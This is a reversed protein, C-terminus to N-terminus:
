SLWQTFFYEFVSNNRTRIKRYESWFCSRIQVSKVCHANYQIPKSKLHFSFNDAQDYIIDGYDLQLGISSKFINNLSPRLFIKTSEHTQTHKYKEVQQNRGVALHRHCVHSTRILWRKNHTNSPAEAM